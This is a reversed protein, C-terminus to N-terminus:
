LNNIDIPNEKYYKGAIYKFGEDDILDIISQQITQFYVSQTFLIHQLRLDIGKFRSIIEIKNEVMTPNMRYINIPYDIISNYGNIIIHNDIMKDLERLSSTINLIPRVGRTRIGALTMVLNIIEPNLKSIITDHEETLQSNNTRDFFYRYICNSKNIIYSNDIGKSKYPRFIRTNITYAPIQYSYLSKTIVINPINPNESEEKLIRDFIVTATDFENVRIFYVEEIYKCLIDLQNFVESISKNIKPNESIIQIGKRNYGGFILKDQSSSNTAGYILYIKTEVAHTRRYYGRLHAVLNIITSSISFTDKIDVKSTYLSYLMDYLDIYINVKTADANPTNQFEQLTLEVLKNYKIYYGYLINKPDILKNNVNM